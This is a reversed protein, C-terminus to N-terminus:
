IIHPILKFITSHLNYLITDNYNGIIHILKFITSHLYMTKNNIYKEM